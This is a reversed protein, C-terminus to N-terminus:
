ELEKYLQKKNIKAGREKLLQSVYIEIDEMEKEFFMEHSLVNMLNNSFEELLEKDHQELSKIEVCYEESDNVDGLDNAVVWKTIVVEHKPHQKMDLEKEQIEKESIYIKM